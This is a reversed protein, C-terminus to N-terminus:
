REILSRDPAPQVAKHRLPFVHHTLQSETEDYCASNLQRVRM